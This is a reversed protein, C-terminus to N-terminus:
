REAATRLDLTAQALASESSVNLGVTLGFTSRDMWVCATFSGGAAAPQGCRLVGGLSGAAFSDFTLAGAGRLFDDANTAPSASNLIERARENDKANVAVFVLDPTGSSSESYAAVLAHDYIGSTRASPASIRIRMQDEVDQGLQGTLRQYSGFSEPVSLARVPGRLPSSSSTGFAIIVAAVAVAAVVACATVIVALRSRRQPPHPFGAPPPYGYPQPFGAPSPYGYPQPFGAPPPYGYPQQSAGPPPFGPPPSGPTPFGPFSSDPLQHPDIPDSM